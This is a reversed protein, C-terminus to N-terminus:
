GDDATRSVMGRLVGEWGGGGEGSVSVGEGGGGGGVGDREKRGRVVEESEWRSLEWPGTLRSAGRSGISIKPTMRGRPWSWTLIGGARGDRAVKANGNSTDSDRKRSLIFLQEPFIRVFIPRLTPLCAAIIYNAPENITWITWVIATPSTRPSTHPNTQFLIALRAISAIFGSNKTSTDSKTALLPLVFGYSVYHRPPLHSNPRSEATDGPGAAVSIADANYAHRVWGGREPHGHLTRISPRRHMERGRSVQGMCIPRSLMPLHSRHYQRHRNRHRHHRRHHPRHHLWANPGYIRPPLAAPYRAELPRRLHRLPDAMSNLSSRNNREKPARRLVFQECWRDTPFRNCSRLPRCHLGPQPDTTTWSSFTHICVTALILVYDDVGLWVKQLRRSLLRGGVMLVKMLILISAVVVVKYGGHAYNGLDM